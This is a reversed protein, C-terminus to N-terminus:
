RQGNAVFPVPRRQSNYGREGTAKLAVFTMIFRPPWGELGHFTRNTCCWIRFGSGLTSFAM